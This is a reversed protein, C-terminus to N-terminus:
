LWATGDNSATVLRKGDARFRVSLLLARHRIPAGIPKGTDLNWIQLTDGAVTALRNSGGLDFSYSEALADAHELTHILTGNEASWIRVTKDRSATIIRDGTPVFRAWHVAGNHHLTFLLKGSSVAYVRAAGDWCAVEIREGRVDFEAYNARRGLKIQLLPIRSGIRWVSVAGEDSATVM